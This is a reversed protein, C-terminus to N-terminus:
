KSYYWSLRWLVKEEDTWLNYQKNYLNYDVLWKKYKIVEDPKLEENDLIWAEYKLRGNHDWTQAAPGDIRHAKGNIYWEQYDLKGDKFWRQIAPGDVRHYETNTTWQEYEKQTNHYYEIYPQTKKDEIYPSSIELAIDVADNMPAGAETASIHALNYIEQYLRYELLVMDGFNDEVTKIAIERWIKYSM